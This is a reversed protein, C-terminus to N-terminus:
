RRWQRERHEDDERRTRSVWAQADEGVLPYPVIGCIESWKRRKIPPAYIHSAKEVLYAALRLQDQTSLSDAEKILTELMQASM